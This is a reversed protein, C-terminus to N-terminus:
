DVVLTFNGTHTLGSASVTVQITYTGAPTTSGSGGGGGGSGGGSAVCGTASAAFLALLAALLWGGRRRRWALPLLLLGALALSRHWVSSRPQAAATATGTSVSLLVTGSNGGAVSLGQPSFSCAAHAPLTGCQYTFTGSAGGLPTLTMSFGATQGSAVTQTASGVLVNFDFGTGSLSAQSAASLASSSVTLNGSAAGASTPAFAVQATCSAGVVLSTTCTSSSLQFGSSVSLSFNSLAVLSTNTITVAQATSSAGLAVTGFVLSSPSFSVSGAAGGAGSLQVTAGNMNATTIALAGTVSGNATPTFVVNASCSAGAALSAGCTNAALGFPAATSVTLGTAAVSSTNSITAVQAASTQGLVAVTFSMQAPSVNIGSSATGTGSVAVAVAQVGATPSSVNLSAVNSGAITPTFLVQATCSAGAALTGTCTTSGVSFSSAAAGTWAFGPSGMPAGGSNTVTLALPASAVGVAQTAFTLASPSVSIAAAQLGTGSLAVSQSRLVDKVTLTGTAAGVATPAFGVTFACSAGAALQASCSSSVTFPGSVAYSISSLSEGGSNTLTVTQTTSAQGVATSPFTLTTPSLTDSPAAVGTGALTATQTGTSDTLTLTGASTTAQTPSFVITLQCSTDGALQTGCANSAIAFPAAVSINSISTAAAGLNQVTISLESSTTGIQVSGFNLQTPYLSVAGPSGGTGSLAVTLSGSAVNSAITLQGSRAGAQSPTFVVQITCSAGAGIQETQCDDTETFDGSATISTVGLAIAGTNTVTVTQASSPTGYPELGFDISAPAATATTLQTGATLLPIQWVGRGYTGAVLVSPTVSAPAARLVTVPAPPLGTGYATWCAVSAQVCTALSRTAYVGADTALYLTSADAPDVVISDAAASPLGLSIYQWHAGGDQSMYVTRVKTSLSRVGQVTVYITNGTADHPDIYISSIDMGDPNFLQNDNSVTNLSLDQWSPTAGGPTYTASLVHGALQAGGDLAGRMGVYILESGGPLAVAAVTNILANGDCYSAASVNDLFGSLLNASSWASGDVPGRWVRCTGVILQGSDLPDVIFPAPDVMTVGDGGVDASTVVATAGFDSASCAGTQSCRHISVGASNNVYWNSANSPDIAVPGGEGDLVQPWDQVVQDTSKVGAAGNVGLGVLATYPSSVISAMSITEALSGLAGNLNNFHSSDSSSCVSGTEGIDDSSRWLGSDNGAFVLLPNAANWGIAHQYAAVGASRCTTANTTNRWVCGAALSCKWLDNAGAMLLTDQGSPVAALALNYDGNNITAAGLLPQNTELAATNVQTSFAATSSSCAGSTLGCRDQWIGQDQNNDDVTWAFTDGTVPNVALTGRYIPCNISGETGISNPCNATTLGTGPQSTMRTWSVGDSSQYYGHFRIAAIFLHRVPNWVVSTVSTGTPTAFGSGNDQLVVGNPDTVTAASWTAGADASYYLGQYSAGQLPADELTGLYAEGVAAVVLQSNTTSWAFGSFGEGFFEYLGGSAAQVLNWTTGNDTSRLIGAGNYSDLADNTDGTGALVVGTGGPQVSVAGITVSSAFVGNFLPGVSDTLPHFAVESASAAANQSSWLGGGTTGVYVTNGTADSPDIAVSSIRGTVLGFDSTQVATPGLPEWVLTSSSVQPAVSAAAALTRPM